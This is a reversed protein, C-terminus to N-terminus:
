NIVGNKTALKNALKDVVDLVVALINQLDMKSRDVDPVRIRVTEGVNAPLFKQKLTRLMKVAQVQLSTTAVERNL